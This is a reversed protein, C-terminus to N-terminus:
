SNAAFAVECWAYGNFVLDLVDDQGVVRTAAALKLYTDRNFTINSTGSVGIFTLRQGIAVSATQIPPSWNVNTDTPVNLLITPSNVPITILNLPTYTVASVRGGNFVSATSLSPLVFANRFVVAGGRRSFLVVPRDPDSSPLASAVQVSLVTSNTQPQANFLVYGLAGDTPLLVSGAAVSEYYGTQPSNLLIPSDWSLTNTSANWSFAANSTITLNSLEKLESVSSDIASVFGQFSDYWPDAGESPYPWMMRSSTAM